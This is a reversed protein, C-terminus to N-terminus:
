GVSCHMLIAIDKFLDACIRPVGTDGVDVTTRLAAPLAAVAAPTASLVWTEETSLTGSANTFDAHPLGGVATGATVLDQAQTAGGASKSRGFGALYDVKIGANPATKTRRQCKESVARRVVRAILM